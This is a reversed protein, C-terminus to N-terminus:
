RLKSSQLIFMKLNEDHVDRKAATIAAEGAIHCIFSVSGNINVCGCVEAWDGDSLSYRCEISVSAYIHICM